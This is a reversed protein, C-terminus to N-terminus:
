TVARCVDPVFFFYFAFSFFLFFSFLLVFSLCVQLPFVRRASRDTETVCVERGREGPQRESVTNLLARLSESEMSYQAVSFSCLLLLLLLPLPPIIAVAAAVVMSSAISLAAGLSYFAYGLTKKKEKERGIHIYTQGGGKWGGKGGGEQKATYLSYTEM